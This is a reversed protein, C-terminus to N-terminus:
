SNMVLWVPVEQPTIYSHTDHKNIGAFCAECLPRVLIEGKHVLIDVIFAPKACKSYGTQPSVFECCFTDPLDQVSRPDLKM